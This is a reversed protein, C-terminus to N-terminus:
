MLRFIFLIVSLIGVIFGIKALNEHTSDKGIYGSILSIIGFIIFKDNKNWYLILTLVSALISLYALPAKRRRVRMRTQRWAEQQEEKRRREDERQKKLMQIYKKEEEDLRLNVDNRILEDIRQSMRSIKMNSLKQGIVSLLFCIKDYDGEKRWEPVTVLEKCLNDDMAECHNDSNLCSSIGASYDMNPNSLRLVIYEGEEKRWQNFFKRAEEKKYRNHNPFCESVFIVIHKRGPGQRKLELIRNHLSEMSSEHQIGGGGIIQGRNNGVSFTRETACHVLQQKNNTASQITVINNSNFVTVSIRTNEMNCGSVLARTMGNISRQNGIAGSTEYLPLGAKVKEASLAYPIGFTTGVNVGTELNGFRLVYEVFLHIDIGNM